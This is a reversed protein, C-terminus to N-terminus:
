FLTVKVPTGAEIATVDSPIEVYGDAHALSTIDGSAKFAPEAYEGALRVTYFQHRGASSAVRRALPVRVTRPEHAPLHALTRVFPILLV